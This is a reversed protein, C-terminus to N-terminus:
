TKASYNVNIVHAKKTLILMYLLLIDILNSQHINQGKTIEKLERYTHIVYQTALPNAVTSSAKAWFIM